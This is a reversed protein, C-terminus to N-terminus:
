GFHSCSYYNMQAVIELTDSQHEVAFEVLLAQDSAWKSFPILIM